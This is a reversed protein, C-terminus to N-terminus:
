KKKLDPAALLTIANFVLQLQAHKESLTLESLDIEDVPDGKCEPNDAHFGRIYEIQDCAELFTALDDRDSRIDIPHMYAYQKFLEFDIESFHKLKVQTIYGTVEKEDSETATEPETEMGDLSVPENKEKVNFLEEINFSFCLSKGLVNKIIGKNWKM